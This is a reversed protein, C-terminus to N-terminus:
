EDINDRVLSGDDHLRQICYRIRQLELEKENYTNKADLIDSNIINAQQNVEVNVRKM